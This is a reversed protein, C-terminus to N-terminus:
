DWLSSLNDDKYRRERSLYKGVEVFGKVQPRGVFLKVCGLQYCLREFWHPKTAYVTLHLLRM